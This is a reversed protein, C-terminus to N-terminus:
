GWSHRPGFLVTGLRLMTSGEEIAIEFDGSMGMSLEILPHVAEPLQSNLLDELERLQIFAKRVQDMDDTLPGITMLGRVNLYPMETCALMEDIDTPHFGFKSEEPSTKVELLTEMKQGTSFAIKNIKKALKLSDISDITDFLAVAKNAKNSQLHGVMRKQLGSLIPLDPFKAAAEKVRNEGITKLGTNYADIITTVPHTKTVAIIKVSRNSRTRALAAEIRELTHNINDILNV